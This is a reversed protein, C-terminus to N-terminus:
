QKFTNIIQLLEKIDINQSQSNEVLKKLYELELKLERIEYKLAKVEEELEKATM